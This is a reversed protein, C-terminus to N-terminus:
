KASAAVLATAIDHSLQEITQSMAAVLAVMDDGQRAASYRTKMYKVPMDSANHIMWSTSLVIEGDPSEGFTIVRVWVTYDFNHAVDWPYAHVQDSPILESLNEALVSTINENLPEAWRDFEALNVRNRQDYTVIEKRNLHAPLKVQGVAIILDKNTQMGASKSTPEIIYFRPAPSTSCATLTGILLAIVAVTIPKPKYMM